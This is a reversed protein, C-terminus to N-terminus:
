RKNLRGLKGTTKVPAWSLDHTEPLVLFSCPFRQRWIPWLGPSLRLGQAGLRGGLGGADAGSPSSFATVWRFYCDGRKNLLWEWGWFAFVQTRLEKQKKHLPDWYWETLDQKPCQLVGGPSVGQIYLCRQWTWTGGHCYHGDTVRTLFCLARKVSLLWWSGSDSATLCDPIAVVTVSLQSVVGADVELLLALEM